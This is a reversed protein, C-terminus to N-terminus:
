FETILSPTSGPHGMIETHLRLYQRQSLKEEANEKKFNIIM